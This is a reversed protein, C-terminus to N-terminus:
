YCIILLFYRIEDWYKLQLWVIFSSVVASSVNIDMIEGSSIGSASPYPSQVEPVSDLKFAVELWEILRLLM